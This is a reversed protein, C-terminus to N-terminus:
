RSSVKKSGGGLPHEELGVSGCDSLMHCAAMDRMDTLIFIM